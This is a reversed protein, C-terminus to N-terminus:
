TKQRVGKHLSMLAPYKGLPVIGFADVVQKLKAFKLVFEKTEGPLQFTLSPTCDEKALTATIIHGKLNKDGGLFPKCADLFGTGFVNEAVADSDACFSALSNLRQQHEQFIRIAPLYTSTQVYWLTGTTPNPVYDRGEHTIKAQM